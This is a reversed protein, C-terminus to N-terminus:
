VVAGKHAKVIEIRLDSSIILKAACNCPKAEQPNLDLLWGMTSGTIDAIGYLMDLRPRTKGSELDLYTQRAVDLKTAMDVQSLHAAERADRIRVEIGATKNQYQSKM